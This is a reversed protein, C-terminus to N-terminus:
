RQAIVDRKALYHRLLAASCTDFIPERIGVRFETRALFFRLFPDQLKPLRPLFLEFPELREFRELLEFRRIRGISFFRSSRKSGNSRSSRTFVRTSCDGVMSWSLVGAPIAAGRIPFPWKM